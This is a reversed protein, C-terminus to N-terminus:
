HSSGVRALCCTVRLYVLMIVVAGKEVHSIPLLFNWFVPQFLSKPFSRHLHGRSLSSPICLSGGCLLSPSAKAVSSDKSVLLGFTQAPLWAGLPLMELPVRPHRHQLSCLPVSCGCVSSSRTLLDPQLHSRVLSEM